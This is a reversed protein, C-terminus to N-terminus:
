GLHRLVEQNLTKGDIRGAVKPMLVKMVAGIQARNTAGAEAIASRVLEALEEPPIAAPLYKELEAIEAEEKGALEARGGKLFGEIADRRQKIQRRIVAIAEHDDLLGEASKAEIAAYGLASKLMRLLGLKAADKARMAEKIDENIQQQIPM